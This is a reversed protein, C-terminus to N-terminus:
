NGLSMGVPMLDWFGQFGMFGSDRLRLLEETLELIKVREYEGNDFTNTFSFDIEGTREDHWRWRSLGYSFGEATTYYYYGDNYIHLLFGVYDNYNFVRWSKLLLNIDFAAEPGPETEPGPSPEQWPEPEPEPEPEPWPEPEFEPELELEPWPEPEPELKPEPWPEPEPEPEPDLEPEPWYWPEPQPEPRPEPKPMPEPEPRPEPKPEPKPEPRPEPRPEPKPEPWRLPEPKPEPRPQPEPKDSVPQTDERIWVSNFGARGIVLLFNVVQSAPIRRVMVRTLGTVPDLEAAPDLANLRLRLFADDISDPKSYAGVQILYLKTSKADPIAGIIERPLNQQAFAYLSIFMLGSIFFLRRMKEGITDSYINYSTFFIIVLKHPNTHCPGANAQVKRGNRM